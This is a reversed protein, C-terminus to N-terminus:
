GNRLCEQLNLRRQFPQMTQETELDDIADQIEEQQIAKVDQEVRLWTEAIHVHNEPSYFGEMMTTLATPRLVNSLVKRM